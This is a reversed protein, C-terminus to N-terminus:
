TAARAVGLPGRPQRPWRRASPMARARHTRAAHTHRARSDSTARPVQNSDSEPTGPRNPVFRPCALGCNHHPLELSPTCTAPRQPAIPLRSRSREVFIHMRTTHSFDASLRTTHTSYSALTHM